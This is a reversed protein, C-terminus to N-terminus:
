NALFELINKNVEKPNDMNACHRANPIIKLTINKDTEAWKKSIKKINGATSNEGCLLLVPVSFRYNKDEHLVNLVSLMIEIHRNKGMRM